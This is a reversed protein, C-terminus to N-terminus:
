RRRSTSRRNKRRSLSSRRRRPSSPRSSPSPLTGTSHVPLRSPPPPGASCAAPSTATITRKPIQCQFILYSFLLTIITFISFLHHHNKKKIYIYIHLFSLSHTSVCVNPFNFPSLLPTWRGTMCRRKM